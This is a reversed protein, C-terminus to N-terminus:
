DNIRKMWRTVTSYNIAGDGYVQKLRRGINQATEGESLLFEIVVRQKQRSQKPAITSTKGELSSCTSPNSLIQISSSSSSSSIKNMSLLMILYICHVTSHLMFLFRSAVVFTLCASFISLSNLVPAYEGHM